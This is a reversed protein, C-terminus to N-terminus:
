ECLRFLVSVFILTKTISERYGYHSIRSANTHYRMVPHVSLENIMDDGVRIQVFNQDSDTLM